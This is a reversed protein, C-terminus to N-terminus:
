SNRPSKSAVSKWVRKITKDDCGFVARDIEPAEQMHEAPQVDSLLRWIVRIVEESANLDRSLAKIYLKRDLNSDKYDKLKTLMRTTFSSWEIFRDIVECLRCGKERLIRIIDIRAQRRASSHSFPYDPPAVRYFASSGLDDMGYQKRLKSIAASIRRVPMDGFVSPRSVDNILVDLMRGIDQYRYFPQWQLDPLPGSGLYDQEWQEPLRWSLMNLWSKSLAPPISIMAKGEAELLPYREEWSQRVTILKADMIAPPLSFVDSFAINISGVDSRAIWCAPKIKRYRAIRELLWYPYEMHWEWDDPVTDRLDSPLIGKRFALTPSIYHYAPHYRGITKKICEVLDEALILEEPKDPLKNIVM